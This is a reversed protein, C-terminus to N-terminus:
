VTVKPSAQALAIGWVGSGSAIDLVGVPSTSASLKLEKALAQAAPYSMPFIDEVFEAFFAAGETEQNIACTPGGIRVVETLELWKPILQRSIHKLIAGAFSPKSSVLFAASEPTLSYREDDKTL